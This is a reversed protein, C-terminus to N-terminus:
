IELRGMGGQAESLSMAIALDLEEQERERRRREEEERASLQSNRLQEALLSSATPKPPPTWAAGNSPSPWAPPSSPSPSPHSPSPTGRLASPSNSSSAPTSRAVDSWGRKVPTSTAGASSTSPATPPLAPLSPSSASTGLPSPGATSARRSGFGGSQPPSALSAVPWLEPSMDPVPENSYQAGQSGYMPGLRPSVQIKSNPNFSSPPSGVALLSPSVPTWTQHLNRPSSAHPSVSLSSGRTYPSPSVSLSQSRSAGRSTAHSSSLDGEEDDGDLSWTTGSTSARSREFDTDLAFSDEDDLMDDPVQEWDGEFLKAEQDDLSLMTAFAVAEEETMNGMAPPIGFDTARRQADEYAELRATSEASLASISERVQYQLELNAKFREQRATLKGGKGGAGVKKKVEDSVRWALVRGGIAAVVAERNARVHSVLWREEEDTPVLGQALLRSPHRPATRDRFSRIPASLTTSPGLTSYFRLTGDLGGVFVGVDTVEVATVRSASGGGEIKLGQVQKVPGVCEGREQEEEALRAEWDWLFVRGDRDGAAVYKRRGFRSGGVVPAASDDAALSPSPISLALSNTRSLSPPLALSLSSSSASSATHLAFPRPPFTIKAEGSPTQPQSAALPAAPPPDFDVAFATLASLYEAGSPNGFTTRIPRALPPSSLTQSSPPPPFVYRSFTPSTSQHVLLSLAAAPSSASSAGEAPPDFVVYDVEDGEGGDLVVPEKEREAAAGDETSKEEDLEIRPWVVTKGDSRGVALSAPRGHHRGLWGSDFAVATAKVRSRAPADGAGGLGLGPAPPRAAAATPAADLAVDWRAHWLKVAPPPRERADGAAAAAASPSVACSWIAVVGDRGASVFVEMRQKVGKLVRGGGTGGANSFAVQQVRSGERHAEELARVEGQELASGVGGRGGSGPATASSFRLSGDRMGWVLRAGDPSIAFSTSAIIPLGLPRGLHDIPSSLLPRKSLKGTFPSSHVGAGLDHSVSLLSATSLSPPDSARPAPSSRTSSPLPATSSPLHIHMASIAGLSPNHIVTPTRSRNWQRLLSVRAIYESRWSTPEIRRGLSEPKVDYYTEFANRWSGEDGVVENWGKCVLQCTGLAHPPLHAFIHALLELPLLAIPSSGYQEKERARGKGKRGGGGAGGGSFENGAELSGYLAGGADPISALVRPSTPSASM